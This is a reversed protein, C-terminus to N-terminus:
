KSLLPEAHPSHDKISVVHHSAPHFFHNPKFAPLDKFRQNPLANAPKVPQLTIAATKFPVPFDTASSKELALV